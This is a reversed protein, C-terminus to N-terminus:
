SVDRLLYEVIEGFLSYENCILDLADAFIKTPDIEKGNDFRINNYDHDIEAFLYYLESLSDCYALRKLYEKEYYVSKEAM